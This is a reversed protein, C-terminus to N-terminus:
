LFLWLLVMFRKTGENKMCYCEVSKKQLRLTSHQLFKDEFGCIIKYKQVEHQIRTFTNKLPEDMIKSLWPELPYRGWALLSTWSWRVVVLWSPFTYTVKEMDPKRQVKELQAIRPLGQFVVPLRNNVVGIMLNWTCCKRHMQNWAAFDLFRWSVIAVLQSYVNKRLTRHNYWMWYPCYSKVFAQFVKM